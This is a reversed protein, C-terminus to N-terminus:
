ALRSSPRNSTVYGRTRAHKTRITQTRDPTTAEAVVRVLGNFAHRKGAQKHGLARSCRVGAKSVRCTQVKPRRAQRVTREPQVTYRDFSLVEVGGETSVSGCTPCAVTQTSAKVAAVATLTPRCASRHGELRGCSKTKTCASSRSLGPLIPRHGNSKRAM